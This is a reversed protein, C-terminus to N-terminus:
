IKHGCTLLSNQDLYRSMRGDMIDLLTEQIHGGHFVRKGTGLLKELVWSSFGFFRGGQPQSFIEDDDFKRDWQAQCDAFCDVQGGLSKIPEDTLYNFRKKARSRFSECDRFLAFSDPVLDGKTFIYNHIGFIKALTGGTSTCMRSFNHFGTAFLFGNGVTLLQYAQELTGVPDVLHRLTWSSVILEVSNELNLDFRDLSELLNELKFGSIKHSIVNGTVRKEHVPEGEGTIGIVHFRHKSSAYERILFARIEDVWSFKGAGLDLFYLDTKEPSAREIRQAIVDQEIFGLIGYTGNRGDFIWPTFSHQLRDFIKDIKRQVKAPRASFLLSERSNQVESRDTKERKVGTAEMSVSSLCQLSSLNLEAANVSSSSM